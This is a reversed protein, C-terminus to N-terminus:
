TKIALRGPYICVCWLLRAPDYAVRQVGQSVSTMWMDTCDHGNWELRQTSFPSRGTLDWEVV